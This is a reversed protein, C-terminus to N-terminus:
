LMGSTKITLANLAMELKTIAEALEPHKGIREQLSTLLQHASEVHDAPGIPKDPTAKSESEPL